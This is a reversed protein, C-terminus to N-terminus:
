HLVGEISNIIKQKYSFKWVKETQLFWHEVDSYRSSESIGNVPFSLTLTDKTYYVLKPHYLFIAPTEERLENEIIETLEQRKTEDSESRLDELNQDLKSSVYSSINLGPSTRQSSHWFAYLDSPDELETGSLIAQFDRNKIVRQNLDSYEFIQIDTHVGVTDFREKILSALKRSDDSNGITLTLSLTSSANKKKFNSQAILDEPKEEDRFKKHEYFPFHSYAAEASEGFVNKVLESKHLSLDLAKRIDKDALFPAKNPNLFISYTQPLTMSREATNKPASLWKPEHAVFAFSDIEKTDYAQLLLKENQYSHIAIKSLYPRGLAYKKYESLNFERAIGSVRVVSDVKYPGSGIADINQDSQVIEEPSLKKWLNKPLIGVSLAREFLPYPQKLTFVMKYDSVKEVRVGEWKIKEPSKMRPDQILSITYLVDDATMHDGNHFFINEKLTVTYTLGDESKEISKASDLIVKNETNVKTLGSFILKTLDEDQPNSALVPNIFRPTGLIGEHIEGGRKPISIVLNNNFSIVALLFFLASIFLLVWVLFVRQVSLSLYQKKLTHLHSTLSRM